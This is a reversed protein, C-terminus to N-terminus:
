CMSLEHTHPPPPHKPKQALTDGTPKYSDAKLSSSPTAYRPVTNIRLNNTPHLTYVITHTCVTNNDDAYGGGDGGDGCEGGNCRM